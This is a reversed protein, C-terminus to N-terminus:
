LVNLLVVADAVSSRGACVLKAVLKAHDFAGVLMASVSSM